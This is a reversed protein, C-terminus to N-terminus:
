ITVGFLDIIIGVIVGISYLLAVIKLNESLKHNTRFLILLAVGSGTLLGAICSGLTIVDKLYLETIIVSAGCNPILGVLSSVFSGFINNKLFINKLADEGFYEMIMNLAFTVILIFILINFTHKISSKLIGHECDCHEDDCIDHIHELEIKTTRFVLDIIFGFIIGVIVKISILKIIVDINTGESLMIPLMEDSTSLYISILTGLTIIRGVYLNTALASFGCQPFAGLLGGIFPGFKGSKQIVNKNKNSLKHEFFEMLIFAVFLFPLLKLADMVTDLVVDLM